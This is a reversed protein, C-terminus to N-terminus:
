QVTWKFVPDGTIAVWQKGDAPQIVANPGTQYARGSYRGGKIIIKGLPWGCDNDNTVVASNGLSLGLDATYDIAGFYDGSEITVESANVPYVAYYADEEMGTTRTGMNCDRLTVKGEESSFAGHIGRVTCRELLATSGFIRMAYSFFYDDNSYKCSNSEFYSDSMNVVSTNVGGRGLGCVTFEGSYLKANKVTINCKGWYNICSSNYPFTPASGHSHYTMDNTLTTGNITLNADTALILTKAWGSPLKTSGANTIAGGNITLDDGAELVLRTQAGFTITKGEAINIVKKGNVAIKSAVEQPITLDHNINIVDTYGDELYQVFSYEDINTTSIEVNSSGNEPKTVANVNVAGNVVASEGNTVTLTSVTPILGNENERGELTISAAPLDFEVGYNLNGNIILAFERDAAEVAGAALPAYEVAVPAYTRGNIKLKQSKASKNLTFVVAGAAARSLPEEVVEVFSGDLVVKREGAALLAQAEALSGAIRFWEDDYSVESYRIEKTVQFDAPSTLLPGYVNTRYNAQVPMSNVTVPTMDLSGNNPTLEAEVLVSSASPVLLYNM